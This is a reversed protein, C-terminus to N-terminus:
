ATEIEMPLWVTEGQNSVLFVGKENKDDRSFRGDKTRRFPVNSRVCAKRLDRVDAETQHHNRM